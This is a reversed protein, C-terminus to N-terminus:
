LCCAPPEKKRHVWPKPKAFLKGWASFWTPAFSIDKKMAIRFSTSTWCIELLLTFTAPELPWTLGSEDFRWGKQKAWQSGIGAQIGVGKMGGKGGLTGVCCWLFWHIKLALLPDIISTRGVQPHFSFSFIPLFISDCSSQSFSVPNRSLEEGDCPGLPGCPGGTASSM